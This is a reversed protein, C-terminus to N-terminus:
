RRAEEPIEALWARVAEPDSIRYTAVTDDRPGVLISIGGYRHAAEFAFEDTRDDGVVVPRRDRFPPQEMLEDLALGKDFAAPRLEQVLVGPQVELTGGAEEAIRSALRVVADESEPADRYHIAFGYGKDEIWAGPIDGIGADAMSRLGKITQEDAHHM